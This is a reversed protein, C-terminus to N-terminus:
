PSKVTVKVTATTTAGKADSLTYTFSDTGSYGSQPTYTLRNGARTVTGHTAQGNASVNVTHGDPDSDNVTPDIAKAVNYSTTVSDNVAKPASNTQPPSPLLQETRLTTTYNCGATQAEANSLPDFINMVVVVGYHYPYSTAGSYKYQTSGVKHFGLFGEHSTLGNNNHYGWSSSPQQLTQDQLLVAERHGWASSADKYIWGYIAREIPLPISNANLPQTSWTWFYALNESRTIFEKCTSGVLKNIRNSPNDINSNGSPQYHGTTNSSLLLNAYNRAVTDLKYDIGALPLGIVGTTSNARAKREANILYLAKADDNLTNWVTQTPMTLTGLKNPALGLQIEEQRRAYNFASAIDSVGTYGSNWAIDSSINSPSAAFTPATILLLTSTSLSTIHTRLSWLHVRRNQM